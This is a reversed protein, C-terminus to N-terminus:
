NTRGTFIVFQDRLNHQLTPKPLCKLPVKNAAMRKRMAITETLITAAEDAVDKDSPWVGAKREQATKELALFAQESLEITITRRM